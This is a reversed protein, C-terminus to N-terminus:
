RRNIFGDDVKRTNGFRYFSKDGNDARNVSSEFRSRFLILCQALCGIVLIVKFACTLVYNLTIYLLHVRTPGGAASTSSLLPAPPYTGSFSVAAAAEM